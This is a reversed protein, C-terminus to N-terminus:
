KVINLNRQGQWKMTISRAALAGTSFAAQLNYGGTDGDIDLVEGVLYFGKALRSEMTKPNVERLDAGGRTVMAVDYGGLKSVELPLGILNNCLNIRMQRTLQASKLDDPIGSIELIRAMLRAPIFSVAPGLPTPLDDLLGKLSKGGAKGASKLLWAELDQRSSEPIFSLRIIDGPAVFRSFDLIAPGSLGEHTFLIDGRNARTMAPNQLSVQVDPISIGALEHFPYDKIYLPTLAPGTEIINHGLGRSLLYGEGSSGTAPYSLGGTAVVVQPSVFSRDETVVEFGHEEKSLSRVRQGCLLRVGNAICEQVLIDLVDRSRRTVPFVKGSDETIMALGKGEFFTTLDRNTFSQLAPRLSRGHDGYHSLFEQIDGNHTINCRGSGSVLLKHGPSGMKELVIIRKDKNSAAQLACFLGAPGAGIITLDAEEPWAAHRKASPRNESSAM